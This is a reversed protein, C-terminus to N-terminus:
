HILRASSTTIASSSATSFADTDATINLEGSGALKLRYVVIAAYTPTYTNGTARGAIELDMRPTYIIGPFEFQGEGTIKSVQGLPMTPSQVISYGELDGSLPPTTVFRGSGAIDISANQDLVITVEDGTISASSSLKISGDKIIYNGPSMTVNAGGTVHMGGCYTGPSLATDSSINLNTHDCLGAVPIALGAFPDASGPCNVQPAPTYGLGTYGGAVCINDANVTAGGSNTMATASTSQIEINCANANMISSGTTSFAGTGIPDLVYFCSIRGYVVKSTARASVKQPGSTLFNSFMRPVEVSLAVDVTEATTDIVVDSTFGTLTTDNGESAFAYADDETAQVIKRGGKGLKVAGALAAADAADQLKAQQSQWVAIDSAIAGCIMFITLCVGFAMAMNGNENKLYQNSIKM